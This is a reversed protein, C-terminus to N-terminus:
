QTYHGVQRSFLSETLVNAQGVGSKSLEKFWGDCMMKAAYAKDMRRTSNMWLNEGLGSRELGRSHGYVCKRANRVASQEIQCDYV